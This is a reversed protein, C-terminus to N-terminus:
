NKRRRNKPGFRKFVPEIVEEYSQDEEADPYMVHEMFNNWSRRRYDQSEQGQGERHGMRQRRAKVDQMDIKGDGNIDGAQFIEEIKRQPIEKGAAKFVAMLEELDIAGDKDLDERHLGVHKRHDVVCVCGLTMKKRHYQGETSDEAANHALRPRYHPRSEDAVEVLLKRAGSFSLLFVMTLLLSAVITPRM